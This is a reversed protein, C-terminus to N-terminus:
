SPNLIQHEALSQQSVFWAEADATTRFTCTVRFYDQALVEFIRMMGFLAERSVVIACANFRIKSRIRRLQGVVTSLQPTNPLSDVKSLDLFVDASEPLKSDTELIRFHDVIEPLRLRGFAETRIVNRATDIKYTIPM